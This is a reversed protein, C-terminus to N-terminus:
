AMGQQFDSPINYPPISATGRKVSQVYGPGNILNVIV